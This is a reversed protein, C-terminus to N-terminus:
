WQRQNDTAKVVEGLADNGIARVRGRKSKTLIARLFPGAGDPFSVDHPYPYSIVELPYILTM